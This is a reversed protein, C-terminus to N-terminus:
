KDLVKFYLTQSALSNKKIAQKDTIQLLLVYDGPQTTKELALTKRIPIRRFDNAGRLDVANIESKLLAVGNGFLTLHYELEPKKNVGTEANYIVAAYDITEGPAYSRLVSSKRSDRRVDPSLESTKSQSWPIGEDGNIIFIDSLSLRGKKLNPIEVYQYASGIKGSGLDKIAARFYYAGPKKVPLTLSFRLGHEKIWPIDESRFSYDFRRASSDQIVNDVNSTICAAELSVSHRGEKAEVIKLDKVDVHLWSQLLYGKQPDDIYGSALNVELNNNQFPSFIADHLSGAREDSTNSSAPIRSFGDRSHVECGSRKAKIKISAYNNKTDKRFTGAPPIYTLLYYGKIMESARGIGSSSSSFNSDTVFLGGTKKSLPLQLRKNLEKLNFAVKVDRRRFLEGSAASADVGTSNKTPDFPAISNYTMGAGFDFIQDPGALEAMDLTHIVVGARLASEALRNYLAQLREAEYPNEGEKSLWVSNSILVLSKRGPMEQLSKVCYSIATIQVLPDNREKYGIGIWQLNDIISFLHRRDSTFTQVETDGGATPVIAAIDGPQMQTEVFKRLARRTDYVQPFTMDINEIVFVFTRRIENKTLLPAPILPASQSNKATGTKFSPQPQSQGVYIASTLKQLTGDQRIEFDDVTLDTIQHGNRDLVVADLRVEEVDVKISLDQKAPPEQTNANGILMVFCLLTQWYKMM